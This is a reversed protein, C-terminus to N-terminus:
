GRTSPVHQKGVAEESEKSTENSCAALFIKLIRLAYEKNKKSCSNLLNLVAAVEDTHVKIEKKDIDGYIIYDLSMNLSESLALLTEISMGCNGREIDAYYKSARNIKEAMEDQTMGLLNRKFRIRDGVALRNYTKKM